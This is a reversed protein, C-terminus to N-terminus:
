AERFIELLRNYKATREGRAPSGLKLSASLGVALDSITSDCTEGSRHSVITHWNNKKALSFARLSETITGVQNPKLLLSNCARKKQAERMRSVNTTLLDDGVILIERKGKFLFKPKHKKLSKRLQRFSEFDEECFPDEISVIPYDKCLSTYYKGLEKKNLNEGKEIEYTKTREDYTESAAIDLAIGVKDKYGCMEISKLIIELVKRTERINPSFGGEDGVNTQHRGCLKEILKKLTHYVECICRIKDNLNEIMPVLMFEQIQLDNGSHVGGNIVNAFLHPPIKPCSMKINQPSINKSLRSFYEYLPLNYYKAKARAFAGSLALTTNAGLYKKNPTGDCEILLCDFEEQTFRKDKVVSEFHKISELSNRVSKGFYYNEDCDRKESAEYKGTSAGSPVQFRGKSGDELVVVAEITPFGRSDIIQLASIKIVKPGM